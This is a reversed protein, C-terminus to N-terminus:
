ARMFDLASREGAIIINMELATDLLKRIKDDPRFTRLPNEFFFIMDVKKDQMMTILQHYAGGKERSLRCVPKQITGELVKAATNTSILQHNALVDRNSYSWEILEKRKDASAIIAIRKVTTM